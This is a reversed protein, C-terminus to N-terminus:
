ARRRRAGQGDIPRLMASPSAAVVANRGRAKAEYLAADAAAHLTELDVPLVSAAVGISVTTAALGGPVDVVMQEFSRRLREAIAVAEGLQTSPLVFCFEEGGMRFLQDTPRLVDEALAAFGRLMRDGTEHGHRDNIQKFNDLDLVLLAASEAEASHRRRALRQGFETFARRNLLGTLADSRAFGHQEAERREITIALFLFAALMAHSLVLWTYVALWFADVPGAGWPFPAFGSVAARALLLAAFSMFAGALLPRSRLADGRGLWLDRAALASIAAYILSVVAIRAGVNAMFPPVLCLAVWLAAIATLWRWPAPQRQFLRIGMWLCGLAMILALNGFLISWPDTRWDTRVYLTIAGSGALFPAGWWLLWPSERERLWLVVFTGGLALLVGSSGLVITYGDISM